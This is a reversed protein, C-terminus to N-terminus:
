AGAGPRCADYIEAAQRRGACRAVLVHVRSLQALRALRAVRRDREPHCAEGMGPQRLEERALVPTDRARLTVDGSRGACRGPGSHGHVAPRELVQRGRTCRAVLIHMEPLHAGGALRAMTDVGLLESRHLEAVGVGHELQGAAVLRDLAPLAVLGLRARERGACSRGHPQLAEGRRARGAVLVLVEALKASGALRAVRGRRELDRGELVGVQRREEEPLVRRLGTRGTVLGRRRSVRSSAPRRDPVPAHRCTRGAVGVGM